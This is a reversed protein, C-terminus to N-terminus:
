FSYKNRAYCLGAVDIMEQWSDFRTNILIFEDWEDDPIAEFCKQSKVSFGSAAILQDFSTFSSHEILFSETFIESFPVSQGNLKDANNSLEELTQQAKEFDTMKSSM